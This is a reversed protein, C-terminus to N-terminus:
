CPILAASSRAQRSKATAKFMLATVVMPQTHPNSLMNECMAVYHPLPRMRVFLAHLRISLSQVYEPVVPQNSVLVCMM